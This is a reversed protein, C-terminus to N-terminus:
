RNLQQQFPHYFKIHENTLNICAYANVDLLKKKKKKVEGNQSIQKTSKHTSITLLANQNITIVSSISIIFCFCFLVVYLIIIPSRLLFFFLWHCWQFKWLKYFRSINQIIDHTGFQICGHTHTKTGKTKRMVNLECSWKNRAFLIVAPLSFFPHFSPLFFPFCVSYVVLVVSFFRPFFLLPVM